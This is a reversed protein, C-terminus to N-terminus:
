QLNNKCGVLCHNARMGIEHIRNKENESLEKDKCFLFHHPQINCVREMILRVLSSVESSPYLDRLSEKIYAITETM